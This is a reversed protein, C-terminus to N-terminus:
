FPKLYSCFSNKSMSKMKEDYSEYIKQKIEISINKGKIHSFNTEKLHNVLRTIKMEEM